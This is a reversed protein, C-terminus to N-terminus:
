PCDSAVLENALLWDTRVHHIENTAFPPKHDLHIAALM